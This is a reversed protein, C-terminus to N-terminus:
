ILRKVGSVSFPVSWRVRDSQGYSFQQQGSGSPWCDQYVIGMVPKTNSAGDFAYLNIDRVYDARVGYNGDKDVVEDIWSTILNWSSYRVDEYLTLTISDITRYGPYPYRSGAYYRQDTDVTWYGAPIEEIRYLLGAFKDRKQLTALNAERTNAPNLSLQSTVVNYDLFNTGFALSSKQSKSIDIYAIWRWAPAPDGIAAILEEDTPLSISAM